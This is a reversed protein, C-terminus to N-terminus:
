GAVPQSTGDTRIGPVIARQDATAGAFLRNTGQRNVQGEWTYSASSTHREVEHQCALDLVAIEERPNWPLYHGGSRRSAVRFGSTPTRHRRYPRSGPNMHREGPLRAHQM